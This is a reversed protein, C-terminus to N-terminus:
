YMKVESSLVVERYLVFHSTGIHGNNLPEVTNIPLKRVKIKIGRERERERERCPHFFGEEFHSLPDDAEVLFVLECCTRGKVGREGGDVATTM